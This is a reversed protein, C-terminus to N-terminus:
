GVPDADAPSRAPPSSPRDDSTAWRERLVGDRLEVRHPCGCNRCYLTVSESAAAQREVSRSFDAGCGQCHLTFHLEQM